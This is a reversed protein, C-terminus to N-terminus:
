YGFYDFQTCIRLFPEIIGQMCSYYSGIFGEPIDAAHPYLVMLNEDFLSSGLNVPQM